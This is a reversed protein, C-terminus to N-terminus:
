PVPRPKLYQNEMVAGNKAIPSQSNTISMAVGSWGSQQKSSSMSVLRLMRRWARLKGGPASRFWCRCTATDNRVSNLLFFQSSALVFCPQGSHLCKEKVHLVANGHSVACANFEHGAGFRDHVALFKSLVKAVVAEGVILVEFYRYDVRKPSLNIALENM